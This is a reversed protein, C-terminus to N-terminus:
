FIRDDGLDDADGRRVGFGGGRGIVGGAARTREQELDGGLRALVDCQFTLLFVYGGGTERPHVHDQMVEGGGGDHGAALSREDFPIVAWTRAESKVTSVEGLIIFPRDNM